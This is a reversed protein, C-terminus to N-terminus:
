QSLGPYSLIYLDQSIIYYLSRIFFDIFKNIM